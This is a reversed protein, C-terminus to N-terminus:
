SNKVFLSAIDNLSKGVLCHSHLAGYRASPFELSILDFLHCGRRSRPAESQRNEKEQNIKIKIKRTKTKIITIM